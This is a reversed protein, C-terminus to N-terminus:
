ASLGPMLGAERPYTSDGMANYERWAVRFRHRRELQEPTLDADPVVNM